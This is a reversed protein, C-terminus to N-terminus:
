RERFGYYFGYCFGYTYEYILALISFLYDAGSNLGLVILLLYNIISLNISYRFANLINQSNFFVQKLAWSGNTGHVVIEIYSYCIMFNALGWNKFELYAYLRLALIPIQIQTM